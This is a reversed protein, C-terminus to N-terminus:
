VISCLTSSEIDVSTVTIYRDVCDGQVLGTVDVMEGRVRRVVKATCSRLVM